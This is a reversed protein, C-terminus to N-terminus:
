AANEDYSNENKILVGYASVTNGSVNAEPATTTTFATSNVVANVTFIEGAIILKQGASLGSTSFANSTATWTLNGAEGDVTGALTKADATANLATTAVVRVARLLNSYALFS